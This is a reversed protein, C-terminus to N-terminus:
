TQSSPTTLRDASGTEMHKQQGKVKGASAVFEGLAARRFELFVGLLPLSSAYPIFLPGM